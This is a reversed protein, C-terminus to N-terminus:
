KKLCTNRSGLSGSLTWHRMRLLVTTVLSSPMFWRPSYPLCPRGLRACTTMQNIRRGDVLSTGSM